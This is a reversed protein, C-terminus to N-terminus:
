SNRQYHELKETLEDIQGKYGRRLEEIKAEYFRKQTALENRLSTVTEGQSQVQAWLAELMLRQERTMGLEHDKENKIRDNRAKLVGIVMTGVAGLAVGWFHGWDKLHQLWELALGKEM